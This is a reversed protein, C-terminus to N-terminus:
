YVVAITKVKTYQETDADIVLRCIYIGPSVLRDGDDRGDWLHSYPGSFVKASSLRRVERGRLDYISVRVPTPAKLKFVTYSVRAVDNEGDGNPTFPNPGVDLSSSLEPGLAAKVMLGETDVEPSADGPVIDQPFEESQSDFVRGPFSTGSVAVLCDFTLQILQDSKVRHEPFYVTLRDGEVDVDAADVPAGGIKLGRFTAEFPTLIELADFGTDDGSIESRVYYDFTTVEGMSVEGPYIEGVVQHAVPPTSYEFSFSSAMAAAMVETSSFEMMFQVYRRNGPSLMEGEMGRYPASWGSWDRTNEEVRGKLPTKLQDYEEKTVELEEGIVGTKKHYIYPEPTSGTRTKFRIETKPPVEASLKVKGFNCAASLNIVNSVYRAIPSFGQGNIYIESIMFGEPATNVIKIYRAYKMSFCEDVLEEPNQPRRILLTYIPEGQFMNRPDGDNIYIEYGRIQRFVTASPSAFTHHSIEGPIWSIRNIGYVAGLDIELFAGIMDRGMVFSSYMMGDTLGVTLDGTGAITQSSWIRAAREAINESTDIQSPQLKDDVVELYYLTSAPEWPRGEEGVVWINRSLVPRCLVVEFLVLFIIIVGLGDQKRM